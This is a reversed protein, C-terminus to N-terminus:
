PRIRGHRAARAALVTMRVQDRSVACHWQMRNSLSPYTEFSPRSIRTRSFNEFASAASAGPIMAEGGKVGTRHRVAKTVERLEAVDGLASDWQFSRSCLLGRSTRLPRPVTRVVERRRRRQQQIREPFFDRDDGVGSFVDSEGHCTMCFAAVTIPRRAPHM